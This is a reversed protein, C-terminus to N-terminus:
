VVDLAEKKAAGHKCVQKGKVMVEHLAFLEVMSYALLVLPSLALHLLNRLVSCIRFCIAIHM